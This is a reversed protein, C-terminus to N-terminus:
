LQWWFNNFQKPEKQISYIMPDPQDNNTIKNEKENKNM